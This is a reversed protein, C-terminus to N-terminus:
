PSAPRVCGKHCRIRHTDHSAEFPHFSWQRGQSSLVNAYRWHGQQTRISRRVRTCSVPARTIRPRTHRERHTTLLQSVPDLRPRPRTSHPCLRPGRATQKQAPHRRRHRPPRRAPTQWLALKQSRVHHRFLLPPHTRTFPHLVRRRRSRSSRGPCPCLSRDHVLSM